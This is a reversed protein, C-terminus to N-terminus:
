PLSARYRRCADEALSLCARGFRGSALSAPLRRALGYLERSGVMPLRVTTAAPIQLVRELRPLSGNLVLVTRDPPLMGLYGTAMEISEPVLDAAVLNLHPELPM